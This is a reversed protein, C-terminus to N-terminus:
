GGGWAIQARDTKTGELARVLDAPKPPFAGREADTAHATLAKRVQEVEYNRCAAIWVSLTFESVPQRYFALVDTVLKILEPEENPRM